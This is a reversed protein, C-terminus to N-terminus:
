TLYELFLYTCKAPAIQKVCRRNAPFDYNTKDFYIIARLLRIRLCCSILHVSAIAVNWKYYLESWKVSEPAFNWTHIM